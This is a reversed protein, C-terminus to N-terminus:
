NKNARKEPTLYMGNTNGINYTQYLEELNKLTGNVRFENVPHFEKQIISMLKQDTEISRRMKAYVKFFDDLSVNNSKKIIKVVTEAGYLDAVSEFLVRTPNMNYSKGDINISYTSIQNAVPQFAKSLLQVDSSSLNYLKALNPINRSDISHGIEHGITFAMGLWKEAQSLSNNYRSSNFILPCFIVSHTLSDYAMNPDVNALIYTKEQLSNFLQGQNSKAVCIATNFANLSLINKILSNSSISPFPIGAQMDIPVGYAIKINNVHQKIKSGSQLKLNDLDTVYQKKVTDFINNVFIKNNSSINEILGKGYLRCFGISAMLVKTHISDKTLKSYNKHAIWSSEIDQTLLSACDRLICSKLFNKLLPIDSTRIIQLQCILDKKLSFKVNSNIGLQNAFAAKFNDAFNNEKSTAILRQFDAGKMENYHNEDSHKALSRELGIVSDTITHASSQNILSFLKKLYAEYNSNYASPYYIDLCFDMLKITPKNNKALYRINLINFGNKTLSACVNTFDELSNISDIQQLYGSLPTIGLANRSSYDQLSIYTNAAKGIESNPNLASPNAAYNKLTSIFPNMAIDDDYYSASAPLITKTIWEYNVNQYLNDKIDPQEAFILFNATSLISISLSLFKICFSKSKKM